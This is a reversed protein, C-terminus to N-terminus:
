LWRPPEPVEGTSAEVHEGGRGTAWQVLGPLEGSIETRAGGDSPLVEIETGDGADVLVLGEGKGAGRWKAPIERLLTALVVEPIDTFRAARGLGHLTATVAALERRRGVLPTGPTM